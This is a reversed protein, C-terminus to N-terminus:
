GCMKTATTSSSGSSGPPLGTTTTGTSSPLQTTELGSGGWFSRSNAKSSLNRILQDQLQTEWNVGLAGEVHGEDYGKTDVDVEVLRVNPDGKHEVVWETTVLTEPHAYDAM